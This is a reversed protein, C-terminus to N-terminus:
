RDEKQGPDNQEARDTEAKHDCSVAATGQEQEQLRLNRVAEAPDKIFWLQGLLTQDDVIGKLSTVLQVREAENIPLNVTFVVDVNEVSVPRM